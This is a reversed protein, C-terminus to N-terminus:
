FIKVMGRETPGGSEEAAATREETCAGICGVTGAAPSRLKNLCWIVKIEVPEESEEAAATREGTCAKKGAETCGPSCLFHKQRNSWGANGLRSTLHENWDAQWGAQWGMHM